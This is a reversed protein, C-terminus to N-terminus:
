AVCLMSAEKSAVPSVSGAGEWCLSARTIVVPEEDCLIGNPRPVRPLELSADLIGRVDPPREIVIFVVESCACSVFRRPSRSDDTYVHLGRCEETDYKRQNSVIPLYNIFTGLVELERVFIFRQLIGEKARKEDMHAKRLRRPTARWDNTTPLRAM